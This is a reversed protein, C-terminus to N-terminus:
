RKSPQWEIFEAEIFSDDERDQLLYANDFSVVDGVEIENMKSQPIEKFAGKGWVAVIPNDELGEREPIDIAIILKGM